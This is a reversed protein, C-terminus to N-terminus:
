FEIAKGRLRKLERVIERTHIKHSLFLKLLFPLILTLRRKDSDAIYSSEYSDNSVTRVNRRM